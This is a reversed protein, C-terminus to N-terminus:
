PNQECSLKDQKKKEIEPIADEIDEKSTHNLFM